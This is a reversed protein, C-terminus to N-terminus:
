KVLVVRMMSRFEGAEMKVIYVGSKVADAEWDVAHWGAPRLGNVLMAVRRGSLDYAALEVDAPRPVAYPITTVSNFPNPYNQCLRFETPPENPLGPASNKPIVVTWRQDSETSFEDDNATVWWVASVENELGLDITLRNIDIVVNSLDANVNWQVTTDIPDGSFDLSLQYNRLDGDVDESPEWLFSVEALSLRRGDAPYVLSFPGPPDNVPIIRVNFTVDVSAGYPDTASVMVDAGNNLNYNLPPEMRLVSGNIRMNLRIPAGIFSYTLEEGDTDSFVTDLDAIIWIGCDENVELDPIAGIVEPPRNIGWGIITIDIVDREIDNSEIFFQALKLGISRPSFRVTTYTQEGPEVNIEGGGETFSFDDGIQDLRQETIYLLGEGDNGITFRVEASSDLMVNEFDHADPEVTIIAFPQPFYHAGM